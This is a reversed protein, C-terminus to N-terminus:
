ESDFVKKSVWITFAIYVVFCAVITVGTVVAISVLDSM